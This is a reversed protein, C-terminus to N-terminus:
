IIVMLQISQRSQFLTVLKKIYHFDHDRQVSESHDEYNVNIQLVTM